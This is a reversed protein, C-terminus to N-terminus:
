RVIVPGPVSAKGDSPGVTPTGPDRLDGQPPGLRLERADAPLKGATIERMGESMADRAQEMSKGGRIIDHALNLALINTAERDCHVILEGRTRDVLISGDFRALPEVFNLSVRYEAVQELVDMHRAPFDHEVPTKHVLTRKWPGNNQWTLLTATAEQPPGYKKLMEEAAAKAAPPWDQIIGAVM